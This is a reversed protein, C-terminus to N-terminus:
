DTYPDSKNIKRYEKYFQKYDDVSYGSDEIYKMWRELIIQDETKNRGPKFFCAPPKPLSKFIAKTMTGVKQFSVDKKEKQSGISNSYPSNSFKKGRNKIYNNYEDYTIFGIGINEWIIPKYLKSIFRVLSRINCENEIEMSNKDRKIDGEEPIPTKSIFWVLNDNQDHIISINDINYYDKIRGPVTSLSEKRIFIFISTLIIFLM